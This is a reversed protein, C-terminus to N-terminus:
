VLYKKISQKYRRHEKIAERQKDEYSFKVRRDLRRPIKKNHLEFAYPM